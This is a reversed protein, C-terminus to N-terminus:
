LLSEIVDSYEKSIKSWTYKRNAIQKMKDRNKELVDNSAKTLAQNLSTADKFFIACGETTERNTPVDFSFIALRLHMAEVLSPATGCFSHSHIYCFANGRIYDLEKKDYIADLLIMNPHDQYKRKLKRGYESIEWNSILVIQFQSFNEFAELVIHINNDIQARSVSVAYKKPLFSYKRAYKEDNRDIFHVHDGGYRIVQSEANFNLKLSKRYEENDAINVDSFSSAVKHNLKAWKKQFSNLKPRDWENLGGHNVIVKTKFFLKLPIIIGSGVPSLYLIIDSSVLARCFTIFDYFLGSFGSADINLYKLKAGYYEKKRESYKKANCYVTIEYKESLNQCLFDALTEFGGYKAPVGHTGIIHLKKRNLTGSM